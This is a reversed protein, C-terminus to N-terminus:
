FKCKKLRDKYVIVLVILIVVIIGVLSSASVSGAIVGISSRPSTSHVSPTTFPTGATSSAPTSHTTFSSSAANHYLDIM